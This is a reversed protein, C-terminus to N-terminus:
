PRATDKRAEVEAAAVSPYSAGLLKARLVLLATDLQPDEKPRNNEDSQELPPLEPEKPTEADATRPEGAPKDAADAHVGDGQPKDAKADAADEEKKSDAAPEEELAEEDDEKAGPKPPGLLDADRRMQYLNYREWRVLRVPIDPDVGWKDSGPLRHLSRGSPLYYRATTIKLKASSRSLQILNQVSFKGFTRAGVVIGHHTDQVAGAVIESASASSEDVLIAVPLESWPGDGSAPLQQNETPDRGKTSVVLEGRKLFLSAMRWASDLLGGPNGRLDLVLAKLGKPELESLVNAVDEVTNKQFNTVRIYGVGMDEDLWHNWREENNPDRRLGKVSQIKVVARKLDFQLEKGDRRVSLTVATDKPGTITDVVKNLSFGKLSEGNVHTIIDGAQIGARYAPTDELPTVVEIEDSKRNKVISIGVGIFDGRTHKDFEDTEEPWIITTFDDLPELAGRMLESVVLEEPLRVTQRNIDKVAREFHAVVEKRTLAPAARIQNLKAKVRAEFDRRDDENKLGEFQERASKSEALLLLQELGAEAVAKFDVPEVYYLQLCELASEADEWRVKELRERWHSDETFMNDLRLLTLVERELKEYRPEREFLAALDAYLHWAGRWDHDRRLEEAKALADNTLQQLWDAKLFAERDEAVDAALLAKDLALAYEKREVRAKAYQVYKEFDAQDLRKREAQKELYADLWSRVDTTLRGGGAIERIAEAAKQFDGRIVFELSRRWLEDTSTGTTSRSDSAFAPGHLAPVLLGALLLWRWMGNTRQAIRHM